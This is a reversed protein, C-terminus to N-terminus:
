TTLLRVDTICGTLIASLNIDLKSLMGDLIVFNFRDIISRRSYHSVDEFPLPQGRSIFHWGDEERWAHIRRISKGGRFMEFATSPYLARKLDSSLFLAELEPVNKSMANVLTYWGDDMRSLFATWADCEPSAFFIASPAGDPPSLQERAEDLSGTHGL